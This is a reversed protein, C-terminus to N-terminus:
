ELNKKAYSVNEYLQLETEVGILVGDIEKFSMVYRMALELLNIKNVEAIKKLINIPTILDKHKKYIKEETMALLGQLFVSRVHIMKKLSSAKKILGRKEKNNDLLNFPIQIIDIEKFELAKSFEENTYLSIGINDIKGNSKLEKLVQWDDFELLEKFSHFSYTNLRDINLESLAMDLLEYTNKNEDITFKSM